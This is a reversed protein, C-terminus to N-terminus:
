PQPFAEQLDDSYDAAPLWPSLFAQYYKGEHEFIADGTNRGAVALYDSLQSLTRFQPEEADKTSPRHIFSERECCIL